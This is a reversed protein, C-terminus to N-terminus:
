SELISPLIEKQPTKAVYQQSLSKFCVNKKLSLSYEDAKESDLENRIAKQREGKGWM